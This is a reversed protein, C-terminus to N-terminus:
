TSLDSVIVVGGMCCVRSLEAYAGGDRARPRAHAPVVRYRLDAFQFPLARVDGAAM